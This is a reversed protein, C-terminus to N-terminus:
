SPKDLTIILRKREPDVQIKLRDKHNFPFQSDRVLMASIHISGLLGHGINRLFYKGKGELM